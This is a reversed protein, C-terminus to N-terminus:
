QFSCARSVAPGYLDIIGPCVYPANIGEKQLVYECFEIAVPRVDDFTANSALESQIYSVFVQM